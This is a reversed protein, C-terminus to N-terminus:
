GHTCHVYIDLKQLFDLLEIQSLMGHLTTCSGLNYDYIMKEIKSYTSGDGAIHLHFRKDPHRARIISFASILTAHDKNPQLRSQMGINIIDDNFSPKLKPQYFETDLGNPIVTVKV